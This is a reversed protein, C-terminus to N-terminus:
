RERIWFLFFPFAQSMEYLYEEAEWEKRFTEAVEYRDGDTYVVDYLIPFPIVNNSLM